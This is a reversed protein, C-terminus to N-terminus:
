ENPGMKCGSPNPVPTLREPSSSPGMTPPGPPSLSVPPWCDRKLLIISPWESAGEGGSLVRWLFPSLVKKKLSLMCCCQCDRHNVPKTNTHRVPGMAAGRLILPLEGYEWYSSSPPSTKPTGECPGESWQCLLGPFLIPVLVPVDLQGGPLCSNKSANNTCQM